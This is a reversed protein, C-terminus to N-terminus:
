PFAMVVALMACQDDTLDLKIGDDELYEVLLDLRLHRGRVVGLDALYSELESHLASDIESLLARLDIVTTTDAALLAQLADRIAIQIMLEREPQLAQSTAVAERQEADASRMQHSTEISRPSIISM